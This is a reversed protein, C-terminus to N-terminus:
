SQHLGAIIPTLKSRTRPLVIVMSILPLTQDGLHRYPLAVVQVDSDEVYPVEVEQRMMPTQVTRQPSIWFEEDRTLAKVFPDLWLGKFYLASTLMVRTQRSFM